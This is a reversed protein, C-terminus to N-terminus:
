GLATLLERAERLDATDFGETFWGHIPALLDRAEDCRGQGAWLHALSNAARLEFSRAGQARAVELAKLYSSEAPGNGARLLDGIVRHVEAEVFREDSDDVLNAVERLMALGDAHRGCACLVEALLTLHYTSQLRTGTARYAAIAERLEAVREEGPERMARAATLMIRSVAVMMGLGRELALTISVNACEEVM